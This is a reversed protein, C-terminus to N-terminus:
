VALIENCPNVIVAFPEIEVFEQGIGFGFFVGLAIWSFNAKKFYPIIEAVPLKSFTYWGFFVALLLPIGIRLLKKTSINM